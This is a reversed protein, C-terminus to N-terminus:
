ISVDRYGPIGSIWGYLANICRRESTRCLLCHREDEGLHNGMPALIIRNKLGLNGIKGKELMLM